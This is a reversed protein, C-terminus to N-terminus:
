LSNTLMCITRLDICIEVVAECKYVVSLTTPLYMSINKVVGRHVVRCWLYYVESDYRM